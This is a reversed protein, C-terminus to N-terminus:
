ELYKGSEFDFFKESNEFKKYFKNYTEENPIFVIKMRNRIIKHSYLTNQLWVSMNYPQPWNSDNDIYKPVDVEVYNSGNKDAEVIQNIIYDDISKAVSYDVVSQKYQNNMNITTFFLVFCIIPLVVKLKFYKDNVDKFLSVFFLISYFIIPWSADVRSAYTSGSKMYILLLYIFNIFLLVIWVLLNENIIYKKKVYFKNYLAYIMFLICYFVVIYLYVNNINLFLYLFNSIVSKLNAFSLWSQIALQNGRQGNIDFYVSILWLVLTFFYYHNNKIFDLIKFNNKSKIAAIINKLFIISIYSVLIINLQISSFIALYTLVIFIGKKIYDLSNYKKIFNDYSAIIFVLCANFIGPIIYNFYCNADSAWFGYLSTKNYQKFIVFFSILFLFEYLFTEYINKNQKYIYKSFLYLMLTTMFSIFIAYVLSISFVYDKLIPNVVFAAIYGCLPEIIEPLVKSPNFAGWIPFPLRIAGTFYWDDGDFPIIPCIKTYFVLLLLFIVIHIIIILKRNNKM